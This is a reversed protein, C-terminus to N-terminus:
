RATDGGSSDNWRVPLEMRYMIFGDNNAVQDYLARATANAAQTHWYVQGLRRAAAWSGVARILARGIGRGRLGPATFLDALYCVDSGTTRPHAFFHVIGALTGDARAGLAHMREDAQFEAWARDYQPQPLDDRGYFTNYGRFLLEWVERDAPTLPGTTIM